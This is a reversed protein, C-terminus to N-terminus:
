TWQLGGKRWAYALAIVLITVFIFMEILALLGLDHFAVAWPFIYIMEIEFVFFLLAYLYYGIHFRGTAESTPEMGCEYTTEKLRSGFKPGLLWAFIVLATPLVAGIMIMGLLPGYGDIVM